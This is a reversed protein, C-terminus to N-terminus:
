GRLQAASLWDTVRGPGLYIRYRAAGDRVEVAQVDGHEGDITQVPEGIHLRAGPPPQPVQVPEDYEIWEAYDGVLRRAMEWGQGRLWEAMRDSEEGGVQDYLVVRESKPPLVDLRQRLQEGPFLLAGPLMGAVCERPPRMDILVPGAGSIVQASLWTRGIDTKHNPGPTDGSGQVIPPIFARQTEIDMGPEAKPPGASSEADREMGFARLLVKRVAGKLRDRIM